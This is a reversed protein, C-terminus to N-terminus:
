SFYIFKTVNESFYHHCCMIILLYKYINKGQPATLRGTRSEITLISQSYVSIERMQSDYSSEDNYLFEADEEIQRRKRRGFADYGGCNVPQCKGFCVRVNCIFRISNSTPFKFANFDAVLAKDDDLGWEFFVAPDSACGLEDTVEYDIDEGDGSTLAYCSRAFGGYIHSPEVIIRLQLLDGIEARDIPGGYQDTIKMECTPPPGTNAITGATTLMSVNFGINITKEGTNYTCKIHYAQAKYTVLIPHKQLVLIFRALGQLLFLM